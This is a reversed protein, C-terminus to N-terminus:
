TFEIEPLEFQNLQQTGVNENLQYDEENIGMLNLEEKM